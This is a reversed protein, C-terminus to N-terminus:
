IVIALFLSTMKCTKMEMIRETTKQSENMIRKVADVVVAIDIYHLKLYLTKM